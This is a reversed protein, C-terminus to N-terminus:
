FHIWLGMQPGNFIVDTKDNGEVDEHFISLLRYGAYVEFTKSLRYGVYPDVLYTFTDFFGFGGIDGRVRIQWKDNALLTLRYVVLPPFLWFQVEHDIGGFLPTPDVKIKTKYVALRGGLGLDLWNTVRHTGYIGWFLANMEVQGVRNGIADYTHDFQLFLFDTIFSWKPSYAKFELLAQPTLGKSVQAEDGNLVVTGEIAPLYGYGALVFSWAAKEKVEQALGAFGCFIFLIVLVHKM